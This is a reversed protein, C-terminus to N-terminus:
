LKNLLDFLVFYLTSVVNLPPGSYNLLNNGNINSLYKYLSPILFLLTILLLECLLLIFVVSHTIKYDAKLKELFLILLCPIFFIFYKVACVMLNLTKVYGDDKNNLCGDDNKDIKLVKAIIALITIFITFGILGNLIVFGNRLNQIIYFIFVIFLIPLLISIIGFFIVKIIHFLPFILTNKFNDFSFSYIEKVYKNKSNTTEDYLKNKTDSYKNNTIDSNPNSYIAHNRYASFYFIIIGFAILFIFFVQYYKGYSINHNLPNLEYIVYYCFLLFFIILLSVYYLFYTGNFINDFNKVFFNKIKPIILKLSEGLITASNNLITSLNNGISKINEFFTIEKDTM